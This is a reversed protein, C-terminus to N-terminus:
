LATWVGRSIESLSLSRTGASLNTNASLTANTDSSTLGVADAITNVLNEAGAAVALHGLPNTLLNIWAVDVLGQWPLSRVILFALLCEVAVTGALNILAEPLTIM